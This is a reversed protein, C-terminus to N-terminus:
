HAHALEHSLAYVADGRNHLSKPVQTTVLITFYASVRQGLGGRLGNRGLGIM